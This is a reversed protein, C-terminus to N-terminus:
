SRLRTNNKSFSKDISSHMVTNSKMIKSDIDHVKLYTDNSAKQFNISLNSEDFMELDLDIGTKEKSFDSREAMQKATRNKIEAIVVMSFPDNCSKKIWIQYIKKVLNHDFNSDNYFRTNNINNDSIVLLESRIQNKLCRVKM